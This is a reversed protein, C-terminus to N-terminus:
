PHATGPISGGCGAATRPCCGACRRLMTPGADKIHLVGPRLDPPSKQQKHHQKGYLWALQSFRYQQNESIDMYELLFERDEETLKSLLLEFKENMGLRRQTLERYEPDNNALLQVQESIRYVWELM